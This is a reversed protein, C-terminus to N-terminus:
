LKTQDFTLYYENNDKFQFEFCNFVIGRNSYRKCIQGSHIIRKEFMKMKM